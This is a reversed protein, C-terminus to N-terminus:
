WGELYSYDSAVKELAWQQHYDWICLTLMAIFSFYMVVFHRGVSNFTEAEWTFHIM